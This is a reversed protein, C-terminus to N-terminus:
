IRLGIARFQGRRLYNGNAQPLATPRPYRRQGPTVGNAQPLATPRPYHRQGPTVGNAQPLATPQQGSLLCSNRPTNSKRKKPSPKNVYQYIPTRPHPSKPSQPKPSQPKPAQNVRPRNAKSSSQNIAQNISPKITIPRQGQPNATPSQSPQNATPRTSQGNTIPKTSQGNAKHIRPIFKNHIECPGYMHVKPGLANSKVM